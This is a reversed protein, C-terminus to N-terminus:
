PWEGCEDGRREAWLAGAVSPVEGHIAGSERRPTGGADDSGDPAAGTGRGAGGAREALRCEPERLERYLLPQCAGLELVDACFPLGPARVASGPDDGGVGGYAHLGVRGASGARAAARLVSGQGSRAAGAVAAGATGADAAAAALGAGSIRTGAVAAADEGAVATRAAAVGGAAALGGRASGAADAVDTAQGARDRRGSVETRNQSGHGGEDGRFTAIDRGALAATTGQAAGRQDQTRGGHHCSREPLPAALTAFRRRWSSNLGERPFTLQRQRGLGTEAPAM